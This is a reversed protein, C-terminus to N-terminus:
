ELRTQSPKNEYVHVKLELPCLNIVPCISEYCWGRPTHSINRSFFFLSTVTFRLFVTANVPPTIHVSMEALNGVPLWAQQFDSSFPISGPHATHLTIIFSRASASVMNNETWGAGSDTPPDAVWHGGVLRFHLSIDIIRAFAQSRSQSGSLSVSHIIHAISIIQLRCVTRSIRHFSFQTLPLMNLENMFDEIKRFHKVM